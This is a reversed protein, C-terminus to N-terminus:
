NVYGSVAYLPEKKGANEGAHTKKEQHNGNQSPHCPINTSNLNANGQHSHINSM